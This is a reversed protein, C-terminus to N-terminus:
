GRAAMDQYLELTTRAALAWDFRKSRELARGALDARLAPEGALARMAAGIASVDLPDVLLGGDGVVEPLSTANAAIVPCGGAMAEAAPLGFGEFLSVMAFATAQRYLINLDADDVFGLFRVRDRVRPDTMSGWIEADDWGRSGVLVLDHPLQDLVSSFAQM